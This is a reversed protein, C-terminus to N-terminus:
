TPDDKVGSTTGSGLFGIWPFRDLAPTCGGLGIVMNCGNLSKGCVRAECCLGPVFRGFLWWVDTIIRKCLDRATRACKGVWENFDVDAYKGSLISPDSGQEIETSSRSDKSM